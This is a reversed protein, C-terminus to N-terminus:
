RNPRALISVYYACKVADNKDSILTKDVLANSVRVTKATRALGVKAANTVRGARPCVCHLYGFGGGEAEEEDAEGPQAEHRAPTSYDAHAFSLM